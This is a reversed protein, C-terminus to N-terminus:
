RSTYSIVIEAPTAGRNNISIGSSCYADFYYSRQFDHTVATSTRITGFLNKAFTNSTGTGIASDFVQLTSAVGPNIIHISSVISAGTYVVATTTTTQVTTATTLNVGSSVYSKGPVTLRFSNINEAGAFGAAFLFLFSLLIKKM